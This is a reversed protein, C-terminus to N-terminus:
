MTTGLRESEHMVPIRDRSWGGFLERVKQALWCIGRGFGRLLPVILEGVGAGVLNGIVAGVVPVPIFIQGIIAGFAGCGFRSVATTIIELVRQIFESRSKILIGDWRDYAVYIDYGAILVEALAGFGLPLGISLKSLGATGKAALIAVDDVANLIGKLSSTPVESGVAHTVSNKVAGLIERVAVHIDKIQLSTNIGCMCWMVFHECNNKAFDYHAEGKRKQQAREITEEVTYRRVDRSWVIRQVDKEQFDSENELLGKAPLQTEQVKAAAGFYKSLTGSIGIAAGSPTGWYHIVNPYGEDNHGICLFHHHYSIGWFSSKTIIHDGRKIDEFSRIPEREELCENLFFKQVEEPSEELETWLFAM